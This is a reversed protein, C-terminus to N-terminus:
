APLHGVEIPTIEDLARAYRHGAYVASAIINPANCDGIRHVSKVNANALAQENNALDFYLRDLPERQTVLVISDADVDTDPGGYVCRLRARVSSCDPTMLRSTCRPM